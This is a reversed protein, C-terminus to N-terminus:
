ASPKDGYIPTRRTTTSRKNTTAVGRFKRENYDYRDTTILLITEMQQATSSNRDSTRAYKLALETRPTRLVILTVAMTVGYAVRM